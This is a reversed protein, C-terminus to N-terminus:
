VKDSIYMYEVTSTGVRKIIRDTGANCQDEPNYIYGVQKCYEKIKKSFIYQGVPSPCSSRYDLYAEKKPVPMNLHGEEKDFFVKFWEIFEPGVSVMLQRIEINRLICDKIINNESCLMFYRICDFLCCITETMDKEDFEDILTQKFMMKPTFDGEYGNNSTKVHFWDSFTGFRLRRKTSADIVMPVYNTTIVFKPSENFRLTYPQKGKPNVYLDGTIDNYLMEVNFKKDLDDLVILDTNENVGDYLHPNDSIKKQKGNIFYKELLIEAFRWFLSKGSGGNSESGDGIKNDMLYVAWPKAADKFASCIYGMIFVKNQFSTIQEFNQEDNLYESNVWIDMDKQRVGPNMKRISALAEKWYIMSTAIMYKLIKCNDNKIDIDYDKTEENWVFDMVPKYQNVRFPRIKEQMIECDLERYNHKKVNRPMIEVWGDTFYYRQCYQTNLNVSERPADLFKCWETFKNTNVIQRIVADEVFNESLFAVFERRIEQTKKETIIHNNEAYFKDEGHVCLYRYGLTNLAFIVNNTDIVCKEEVDGNKNTKYEFQYFKMKHANNVLKSVEEADGGVDVFDKFDKRGNGRWDKIEMIYNPLKLTYIDWNERAFRASQRCGTEDIDPVNVIKNALKRLRFIIKKPVKFTESNFWVCKNPNAMRGDEPDKETFSYMNLADREGSMIYICPLKNGSQKVVKEVEYLGHVYDAPKKGEPYHKFRYKKDAKPEYIKFFCDKEGDINEFYCSRVFIPYEPTSKKIIAFEKGDKGRTATRIEDIVQWNYFRMVEETVYRGMISLDSKTFERVSWEIDGVKEEPKLDVKQIKLDSEKRSGSIPYRKLCFKIADKYTLGEEYAVIEIADMLKNEGGFDILKWRDNRWWLNASPDKENRCSFKNNTGKVKKADPYYDAIIDLGDDYEKLLEEVIGNAM